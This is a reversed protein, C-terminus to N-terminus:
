KEKALQLNKELETRVQSQPGAPGADDAPKVSSSDNSNGIYRKMRGGDYDDSEDSPFVDGVVM